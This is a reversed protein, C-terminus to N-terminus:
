SDSYVICQILLSLLGSRCLALGNMLKNALCQTFREKHDAYTPCDSVAQRDHDNTVVRWNDVGSFNALVKLCYRRWFQSVDM